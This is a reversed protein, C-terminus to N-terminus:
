LPWDLLAVSLFASGSMHWSKTFDHYVEYKSQSEYNLEVSIFYAAKSVQKRRNKLHEEKIRLDCQFYIMVTVDGNSCSLLLVITRVACIYKETIDHVIKLDRWASFYRIEGALGEKQTPQM